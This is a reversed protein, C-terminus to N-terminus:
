RVPEREAGPEAAAAEDDVRVLRELEQEGVQPRRRRRLVVLSGAAIALAAAGGIVAWPPGGGDDAPAPPEAAPPAGVEFSGLDVSALETGRDVVALTSGDASPQLGLRWAKQDSLQDLDICVAAGRRTDLAHIFPPEKGVRAYLTYAWRGNPSVARTQPFGAMEDQPEDPDVIPDALLRGRQLDYARVEYATPDRPDSYHILYMLRGDESLADFSFDGRLTLRDIVRMRATDLFAFSTSSRPFRTRPRILALTRGDASLGSPTGDYAVLPVGWDGDLVTTAQIEGTGVGTRVAVTEDGAAVTAYRAGGDLSAVGTNDGADFAVPLGDASAAEAGLTCTAAMLGMVIASRLKRTM